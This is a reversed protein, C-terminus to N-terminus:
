LPLSLQVQRCQFTVSAPIASVRRMMAGVREDVRGGWMSLLEDACKWQVDSAKDPEALVAAADSVDFWVYHTRINGIPHCRRAIVKGRKRGCEVGTEERLERSAAATHNKDAKEVKGGPFVWHVGGVSEHRRLVLFCNDSTRRVIALAIETM